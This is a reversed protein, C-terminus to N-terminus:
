CLHSDLEALWVGKVLGWKVISSSFSIAVCNVKKYLIAAINVM